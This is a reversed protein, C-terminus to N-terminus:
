RSQSLVDPAPLLEDQHGSFQISTSEDEYSRTFNKFKANACKEMSMLRDPSQQRQIAIEKRKAKIREMDEPNISDYIADYYKPVKFKKGKSTVFDKPYADSLNNIIFDRAIGPRRSMTLYEPELAHLEGDDDEYIYHSPAAEGNVKKTVYRACYAASDTTVAGVSCYGLKAFYRDGRQFLTDDRYLRCDKAQIEKSWLEDLIESQYLPIKEHVSNLRELDPFTFNFLCAHHHPREFKDGYEGCHFFRIPYRVETTVEGTEYDIIEHDVANVGRHHKRLRKMFNVFDIKQLSHDKALNEDNFTLTIFSNDEGFLSAEHVCRIAWEKSRRIRCGICQGCPLKLWEATPHKPSDRESVIVIKAKGSATKRSPHKYANIPHYCPM